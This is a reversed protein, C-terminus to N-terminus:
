TRRKKLKTEPTLDIGGLDRMFRVKLPGGNDKANKEIWAEAKELKVINEPFGAVPVLACEERNVNPTEDIVVAVINKCKRTRKPAKAAEAAQKMGEGTVATVTSGTVNDGIVTEM